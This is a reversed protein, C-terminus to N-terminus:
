ISIFVNFTITCVRKPEVTHSFFITPVFHDVALDDEDDSHYHSPGNVQGSFLESNTVEKQVNDQTTSDEVRHVVNLDTKDEKEEESSTTDEGNAETTDPTRYFAFFYKLFSFQDICIM